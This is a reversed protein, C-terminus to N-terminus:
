GHSGAYRAPLVQLTYWDRDPVQYSTQSAVHQETACNLFGRPMRVGHELIEVRSANPFMRWLVKTVAPYYEQKVRTRNNFEAPALACDLTTCTFGYDEFSQDNQLPRFNCISVPNTENTINTRPITDGTDYNITYPKEHEFKPNKTLYSLETAICNPSLDM